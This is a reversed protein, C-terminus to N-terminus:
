HDGGPGAGGLRLSAGPYPLPESLPFLAVLYRVAGVCRRSCVAVNLHMKMTICMMYESVQVLM